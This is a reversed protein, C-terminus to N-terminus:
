GFEGTSIATPIAFQPSSNKEAIEFAGAENEFRIQRQLKSVPIRSIVKGIGNIDSGQVRMQDEIISTSEESSYFHITLPKLTKIPLIEFNKKFLLDINYDFKHV